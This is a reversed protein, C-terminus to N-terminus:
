AMFGEGRLWREVDEGDRKLWGAKSRIKELGQGLAYAFGDLKEDKFFDEIM